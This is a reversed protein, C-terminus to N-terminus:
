RTLGASGPSSDRRSPRGRHVVGALRPGPGDADGGGAGEGSPRGLQTDKLHEWLRYVQRADLRGLKTALLPNAALRARLFPQLLPYFPVTVRVWACAQVAQEVEDPGLVTEDV